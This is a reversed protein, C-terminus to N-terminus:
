SILINAWSLYSLLNTESRRSHSQEYRTVKPYASLQLWFKWTIKPREPHTHLNCIPIAELPLFILPNLQLRREWRYREGDRRRVREGRKKQRGM